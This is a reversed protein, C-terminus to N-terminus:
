LASFTNYRTCAAHNTGGGAERAKVCVMCQGLLLEIFRRIRRVESM